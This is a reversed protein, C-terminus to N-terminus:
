KGGSRDDFIAAFEAREASTIEPAPAAKWGVADSRKGVALFDLLVTRVAHASVRVDSPFDTQFFSSSREPGTGDTFCTGGPGSMAVAGTGDDFAGAVLQQDGSFLALASIRGRRMADLLADLEAMSSIARSEARGTHPYSHWYEACISTM